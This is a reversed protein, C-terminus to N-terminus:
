DDTYAFISLAIMSMGIGVWRLGKISEGFFLVGQLTVIVDSLMNWVLNTVVMGEYKMARLFILPELAYIGIALPIGLSDTIAGTSVMKVLGMMGIDIFAMITGFAIPLMSFNGVKWNVSGIFRDIMDKKMEVVKASVENDM